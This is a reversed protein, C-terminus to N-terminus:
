KTLGGPIISLLSNTRHTVVSKVTDMIHCRYADWELVWKSFSLSGWVCQVWDKILQENMCGNPSYAVVVGQIRSHEPIPRIGKLVVFPKLKSDDTMVGLVVAFRAKEHGITRLPVSRM